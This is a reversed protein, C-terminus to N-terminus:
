NLPLSKKIAGKAEKLAENLRFVAFGFMGSIMKKEEVSLTNFPRAQYPDIRDNYYRELLEKDIM